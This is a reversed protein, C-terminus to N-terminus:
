VMKAMMFELLSYAKNGIDLQSRDEVVDIAKVAAMSFEGLRHINKSTGRGG